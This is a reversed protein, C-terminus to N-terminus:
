ERVGESKLAQHVEEWTLEGAIYRAYLQRGCNAAKARLRPFTALMQRLVYARQEPTQANPGFRPDLHTM